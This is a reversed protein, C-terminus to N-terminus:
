RFLPSAAGHRALYDRLRLKRLTNASSMYRVTGFIPREPGWPRDFRGLCWFIGSLSNPDRGDLAYRDNLELMRALATEPDESWELIRKGWVMRLYNHIRGEVLLERQAANWLPDSTEANALRDLPYVAERADGAHRVLTALAWAPLAAYRDAEPRHHLFHFGLERWTVAQDLFAEASPSTGWWGERAGSASRATDEPSWREREALASLLQHSGLHGFHLYPSLGSTAEEDPHNRQEAYRALQRDLFEEMREEAEAAGGPTGPVPPVDHDIPLRALAGSGGALLEEEAVPWRRTIEEPLSPLRPLELRTLPDANPFAGLHTPLERQLIRRFAYATAPAASTVALPLLGNGDVAELRCAVQRAAVALQRPLHYSPTDDTVIAAAHRALEALLGKGAGKEVEVYPYYHLRAGVARERNVAMGDLVFRHLRDSAWPYDSRLAELVVLPRSLEQAIEIARDLAFNWSLRRAATMWYVVFRGGPDVPRDVLPRIRCAPVPPRPVRSPM